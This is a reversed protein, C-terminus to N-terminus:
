QPIFKNNQEDFKFKYTVKERPHHQTDNDGYALGSITVMGQDNKM